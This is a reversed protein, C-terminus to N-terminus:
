YNTNDDVQIKGQPGITGDDDNGRGLNSSNSKSVVRTSQGDGGNEKKEGDEVGDGDDDSQAAKESSPDSLRKKM